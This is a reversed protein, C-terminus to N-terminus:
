GNREEGRHHKERRSENKTRPVRCIGGLEARVHYPCRGGSMGITRERRQIRAAGAYSVHAATVAVSHVLWVFFSAGWPPEAALLPAKGKADDDAPNDNSMPEFPVAAGTWLM